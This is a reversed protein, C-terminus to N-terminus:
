RSMVEYLTDRNAIDVLLGGSSYEPLPPLEGAQRMPEIATRLAAEIVESVTEGRREAERRIANMTQDSIDLTTKM